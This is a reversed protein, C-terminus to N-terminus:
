RRSPSPQSMSRRAGYAGVLLLLTAGGAVLAVRLHFGSEDDRTVRFVDFTYHGGGESGDYIVVPYRGPPVNPVTFKLSRRVPCLLVPSSGPPANGCRVLDTTKADRRYLPGLVRDQPDGRGNWIIWYATTHETTVETGPPGSMPSLCTGCPGHASAWAAFTGAALASALVARLVGAIRRVAPTLDGGDM